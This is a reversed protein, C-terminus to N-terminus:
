ANPAFAALSDEAEVEADAEAVSASVLLSPAEAGKKGKGNGHQKKSSHQGGSAAAKKLDSASLYTGSERYSTLIGGVISKAAAYDEPLAGRKKFVSAKSALQKIEFTTLNSNAVVRKLFTANNVRAFYHLINEGNVNECSLSAGSAALLTATDFCSNEVALMMPTYLNLSNDVANVDAGHKILYKMVEVNNTRAVAHLLTYGESGRRSDRGQIIPLVGKQKMYGSCKGIFFSIDAVSGAKDRSNLSNEITEFLDILMGTLVADCSVFSRLYNMKNYSSGYRVKSFCGKM